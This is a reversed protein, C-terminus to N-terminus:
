SFANVTNTIKKGMTKDLMKFSSSFNRNNSAFMTKFIGDRLDSCWWTDGLDYVRNSFIFDLMESSEVDRAYRTKLANEYYAPIVINASACTLAELIIGTRETEHNTVPIVALKSGAEVRSYYNEQNEDFKPYPIIGFDTNMNRLASLYFFTEDAFLTKSNNFINETESWLNGSADTQCWAGQDWMIEFVKDLINVFRENGSVAFYPIDDNGKKITLEGGSIWFNPLVQKAVSIYGNLDASTMVGDGNLDAKVTSMMEAMKDFTWIGDKVLQFPDSLKNDQVMQKNFILVHTFDFFTIDFDGFAYFSKNNITTYKLLSQDWYPKTLDIYQLDDYNYILGEQVFYYANMDNTFIVDYSDEGALIEKRVDTCCYTATSLTEKFKINFRESVELNRKYLADNYVEGNQSDVIHQSNNFDRLYAVMRFEYGGFDKQPLDDSFLQSEGGPAQTGTSEATEGSIATTVLTENNKTDACSSFLIPFILLLSIFASTLRVFIKM